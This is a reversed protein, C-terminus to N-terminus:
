VEICLGVDQLRIQRNWQHLIMNYCARFRTITRADQAVKMCVISAFNKRQCDSRRHSEILKLLIEDSEM